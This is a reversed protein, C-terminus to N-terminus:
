GGIPNLLPEYHKFRTRSCSDPDPEDPHDTLFRRIRGAYEQLEQTQETTITAPAKGTAEELLDELLQNNFRHIPILAFLAKNPGSGLMAYYPKKFYYRLHETYFEEQFYRLIREMSTESEECVLVDAIWNLNTAKNAEGWLRDLWQEFRPVFHLRSLFLPELGDSHTNMPYRGCMCGVAYSLLTFLDDRISNTKQKPAYAQTDGSAEDSQYLLGLREHIIRNIEREANTLRNSRELRTATWEKYAEELRMHGQRVMPHRTYHWSWETEDWSEQALRTCLEGLVALETDHLLEECVPLRGVDGPQMNVTPNLQRLLEFAPDSNLYALLAYRSPAEEHQPFLSSGGNDFLFGPELLRFGVRETSVTSWTVGPKGYYAENRLNSRTDARIDRGNGSWNVVYYHNGYWERFGGGKAYPFWVAREASETRFSLREEPVEHWYRVYRDNSGTDMGKKVAYLSSLSPYEVFLRKYPEPLGYIMRAGPLKLFDRQRVISRLSSTRELYASEKAAPSSCETLNWYVGSTDSGAAEKRLVFSVTQVVEGTIDEFARSGLHLVSLFTCDELLGRRLEEYGSLYMWAHQNIAGHYGGPRLFELAREMFAAFLDNRSRPYREDLCDALQASMHRRGLYPPNTIVVDYTDGLLDSAAQDRCDVARLLSGWEERGDAHVSLIRLKVPQEILNPAAQAAKLMLVFRCILVAWPDLDLGSLNRELITRVAAPADMGEERYIPLLVNFAAALLHGCGCAPDMIKWGSPSANASQRAEAGREYYRWALSLPSEPHQELWLRGITNEALYCAIWEPTFLQTIAPIDAIGAKRGKKLESFITDKREELVYQYLWGAWEPRKLWEEPSISGLVRRVQLEVEQPVAMQNSLEGIWNVLCGHSIGAADAGAKLMLPVFAAALQDSPFGGQEM